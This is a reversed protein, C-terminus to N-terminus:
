EGVHDPAGVELEGDVVREAELVVRWVAEVTRRGAQDLAAAAGFHERRQAVFALAADENASRECKTRVPLVHAGQPVRLERHLAFSAFLDKPGTALGSTSFALGAGRVFELDSVSISISIALNAM